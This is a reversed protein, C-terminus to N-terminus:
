QMLARHLAKLRGNVSADLVEDAVRIVIGGKIHADEHYTLAVSQASYRKAIYQEVSTKQTDSLPFASTVTAVVIGHADNYVQEFAVIVNKAMRMHGDYKMKAVFKAVIDSIEQDGKDDTLEYLTQAYQKVSVKM